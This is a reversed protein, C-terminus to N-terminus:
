KEFHHCKKHIKLATKGLDGETKTVRLRVIMSPVTWLLDLERHHPVHVPVEAVVACLIPGEFVTQLM